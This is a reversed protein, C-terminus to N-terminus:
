GGPTPSAEAQEEEVQEEFLSQDFDDWRAWAADLEEQSAAAMEDLIAQADTQGEITLLRMVEVPDWTEVGPPTYVLPRANELVRLFEQKIPDDAGYNAEEAVVTSLPPDPTAEMQVEQADTAMFELLLLADEPHPSDAFTGWPATWTDVFDEQGEVVFFPTMGFDVEAEQYTPVASFDSWTIAIQGQAFLDSEAITELVSSSPAFGDNILGAGIEFAEALAPANMNGLATRGDEGFVPYFNFAIDAPMTCGYVNEEPNESPQGLARCTEEYEPFTMSEDPSPHPVGAADFLEKNYVLVNGGLFTGIGYVGTSPDNQLAGRSMGGPNYDDISVGWEGFRETIETVYGAKMWEEAEIIAVDPPSGAVLSTNVKTVYEEEPYVVVSLDKGPNSEEFAAEIARIGVEDDGQPFMWVSIAGSDAEDGGRGFCGTMVIALITPLALWRGVRSNRRM